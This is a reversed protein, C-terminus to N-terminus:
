LAAFAERLRAASSAPREECLYLGLHEYGGLPQTFARLEFVPGLGDGAHCVLNWAPEGHSETMLSDVAACLRALAAACAALENAPLHHLHGVGLTRPVVFAQLPRRAFGPVLVRARGGLDEVLLEPDPAAGLQQLLARTREAEPPRLASLLIQQHDHEVSGGVRRGRNKIISVHGRHGDGSEPYHAPAEHLLFAEAEALQTLLATAVEPAAAALGGDHALCSWHVLHVGRAPAAEDAFPFVIPYLNPTLYALDGNPLEAHDVAPCTLDDCVVCLAPDLSLRAARSESDVIRFGERPERRVQIGPAHQASAARCVEVLGDFGLQRLSTSTTNAALTSRSLARPPAAM